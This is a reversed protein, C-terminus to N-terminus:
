EPLDAIEIELVEALVKRAEPRPNSKGSLYDYVTSPDVGAKTAWKNKSMGLKQLRPLVFAERTQGRTLASPLGAGGEASLLLSVMQPNESQSQFDAVRLREDEHHRWEPLRKLDREFDTKISGDVHSIPNSLPRNSTDFGHDSYAEITAIRLFEHAEGDIRAVTWVHQRGLDCVERAFAAFIKM